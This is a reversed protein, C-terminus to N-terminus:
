NNDQMQDLIIDKAHTLHKKLHSLALNINGHCLAQFISRHEEFTIQREDPTNLYTNVLISIQHRYRKSTDYLRQNDAIQYMIDHFYDSAKAFDNLHNEKLSQEQIELSKAMELILSDFDLEQARTLAAIDLTISMHYLEDVDKKSLSVVHTGGHREDILLGEYILRNMAEKLPTSSVHFRDQLMKLSVKSGSVIKQDIIEKKIDNYIQESINEKLLKM